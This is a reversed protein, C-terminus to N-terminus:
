GNDAEMTIKIKSGTRLGREALDALMFLFVSMSEAISANDSRSVFDGTTFHQGLNYESFTAKRTIRIKKSKATIKRRAAMVTKSQVM